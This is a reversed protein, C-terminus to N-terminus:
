RRNEVAQGAQACHNDETAVGLVADTKGSVKGLAAVHMVEGIHHRAAAGLREGRRRKGILYREPQVRRTRGALRFADFVHM